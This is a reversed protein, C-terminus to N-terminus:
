MNNLINVVVNYDDNHIVLNSIFSPAVKIDDKINIQVTDDLEYLHRILQTALTKNFLDIKIPNFRFDRKLASDIKEHYNTTAIICLNNTSKIGDLETLLTSLDLLDTPQIGSIIGSIEKIERIDKACKLQDNLVTFIDNYKHDMTTDRSVISPLICDFEELVLIYNNKICM